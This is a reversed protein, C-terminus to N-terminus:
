AGGTMATIAIQAIIIAWGGVAVAAAVANGITGLARM